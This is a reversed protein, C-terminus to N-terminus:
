WSLISFQTEDWNNEHSEHPNIILERGEIRLEWNREEGNAARSATM